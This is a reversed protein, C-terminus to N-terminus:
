DIQLLLKGIHRNSEMLVHAAAAETLPFVQHIVPKIAGQAVLPWVTTQLKQAILAKDAVPRASDRICM